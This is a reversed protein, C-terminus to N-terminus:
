SHEKIQAESIPNPRAKSVFEVYKIKQLIKTAVGEGEWFCATAYHHQLGSTAPELRSSTSKKFQGLGEPRM